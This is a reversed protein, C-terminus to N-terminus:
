IHFIDWGHTNTHTRKDKQTVCQLKKVFLAVYTM